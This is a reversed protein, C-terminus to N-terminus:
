HEGTADKVPLTITQKARALWGYWAITWHRESLHISKAWIQFAQLEKFEDM